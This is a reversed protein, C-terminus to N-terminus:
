EVGQLNNQGSFNGIFVNSQIPSQLDFSNETAVEILWDFKNEKILNEIGSAFCHSLNHDQFTTVNNSQLLSISDEGPIVKSITASYTVESEVIPLKITKSAQLDSIQIQVVPKTYVKAGQKKEAFVKLVVEKKILSQSLTAPRDELLNWHSYLHLPDISLLTLKKSTETIKPAYYHSINDSVELLEQRTIKRETFATVKALSIPLFRRTQAIMKNMAILNQSNKELSYLSM